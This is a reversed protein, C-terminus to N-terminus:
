GGPAQPIEMVPFPPEFADDPVETSVETAELVYEGGGQPDPSSARARLLIGEGSFCWEGGGEATAASFCTAQVGAITDESTELGGTPLGETIATPDVFGGPFFPAGAADGTSPIELCSGGGCTYTAEPTVIVSSTQGGSDFDGRWSGPPSWYLTMTGQVGSADSAEQRYVIMAETTMWAQALSELDGDEGEQGPQEEGGGPQAPEPATGEEGGCAATGLALVLALGLTRTAAM